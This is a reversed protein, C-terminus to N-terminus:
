ARTEASVNTHDDASPTRNSHESLALLNLVMVVRGDGLIAAGSFSDSALLADNIGKIVLDEETLPRDIALAFRLAGIAVAVAYFRNAPLYTIKVLRLVEDRLRICEQGQQVLVEEPTLRVIEVIASVPIAYTEGGAEFLLSRLIALTLPVQLRFITGIGLSSEVQVSGSLREVVNKVVDMGIGRGSIRSVQEATSIGPEFILSYIQQDSWHAADAAQLRGAERARERLREADIGRGDDSISIIVQNAQQAASLTIKGAPPKGIERRVEPSEIGHDVANRVLHMLPEALAELVSRDLRTEAGRVELEVQKGSQQAADRLVRPLRRFLRGVEVMRVELVAHQLEALTRAHAAFADALRTRLPDHPHRTAFEAIAQQLGLKAVMLEGTLNMLADIRAADVRLSPLHAAVEHRAPSIKEPLPSAGGIKRLMVAFRDAAGIVIQAARPADTEQELSAEVAHALASFDELGCAASDGKLTHVVRRVNRLADERDHPDRITELRLADDNLSQVLEQASEVFFQRLESSHDDFFSM